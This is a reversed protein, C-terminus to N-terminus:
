DAGHIDLVGKFHLVQDDILGICVQYDVNYRRRGANM